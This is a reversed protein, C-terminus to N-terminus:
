RQHTPSPADIITFGKLKKEVMGIVKDAVFECNPWKKSKLKSFVLQRTNNKRVGGRMVTVELAGIRPYRFAVDPLNKGSVQVSQSYYGM